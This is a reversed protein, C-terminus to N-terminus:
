DGPEERDNDFFEVHFTCGGGPTDEVWAKGGFHRAIKAVIALGVGSGPTKSETAGRYFVEFIRLQEEFPIGPGHDSVSFRM